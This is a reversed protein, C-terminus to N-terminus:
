SEGLAVLARGLRRILTPLDCVSANFRKFRGARRVPMDKVVDWMRPELFASPHSEAGFVAWAPIWRHADIGLEPRHATPGPWKGYKACWRLGRSLDADARGAGFEDLWDALADKPARDLPNAVVAAWLQRRDSVIAPM